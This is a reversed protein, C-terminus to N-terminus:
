RPSPPLLPVASFGKSKPFMGFNGSSGPLSPNVRSAPLESVEIFFLTASSTPRGGVYIGALVIAALLLVAVVIGVITGAPM